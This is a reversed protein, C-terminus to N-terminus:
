IVSISAHMSAYGDKRVIMSLLVSRILPLNRLVASAFAAGNPIVALMIIPATFRSVGKETDSFLITIYTRNIPIEMNATTLLQIGNSASLPKIQIVMISPVGHASIIKGVSKSTHAIVFVISSKIRRAATQLRISIRASSHM